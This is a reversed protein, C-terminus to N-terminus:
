PLIRLAGLEGLAGELPAEGAGDAHGRDAVHLAQPDFIGLSSELAGVRCHVLDTPSHSVFVRCEEPARNLRLVPM